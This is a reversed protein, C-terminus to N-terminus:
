IGITKNTKPHDSQMFSVPNNELEFINDDFVFLNDALNTIVFKILYM